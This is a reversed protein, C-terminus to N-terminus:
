NESVVVKGRFMDMGCAFGIEGAETSTFEVTVTEGVPLKRTINQKAFVVEGGCNEADARYFALKVPQGKKVSISAPSYGSESVTIKTAGDPVNAAKVAETGGAPVNVIFPVSIVRGGRQFQAWLKYLGARPFATHASVESASPKTVSGAMTSHDHGDSADGDAAHNDAKPANTKVADANHEGKSMPHAHVFDKLDESIIVFHALEGLYNQLDTAPKGSVADFVQFDLMLEQGAKIEASPKMVVKLNDVTKVFSKDPTLAVRERENGAVKIDIQEVVQVAAKPTFDSYLRYDGGNPFTHTVRYSGDASQEPHVHYFESLDKSVILLHMPKEHVIQLDKVTAGQGDKVTFSLQAPTGAQITGPESKFDIKFSRHSDITIETNQGTAPTGNAAVASNSNNVTQVTATNNCGALFAASILFVFAKGCVLKKSM